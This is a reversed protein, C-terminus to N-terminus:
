LPYFHEIVVFETYGTFDRDEPACKTLKSNYSRILDRQLEVTEVNYKTLKNSCDVSNKADKCLDRSQKEESRSEVLEVFADDLQKGYSTKQNRCEEDSYLVSPVTPQIAPDLTPEAIPLIEQLSTSEPDEQPDEQHTEISPNLENDINSIRNVSTKDWFFVKSSLAYYTKAKELDGKQYAYSGMKHFFLGAFFYISVASLILIAFKYKM